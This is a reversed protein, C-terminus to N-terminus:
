TVKVFMPITGRDRYVKSNQGHEKFCKIEKELCLFEARKNKYVQIELEKEGIRGFM